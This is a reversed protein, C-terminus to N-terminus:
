LTVHQGPKLAQLIQAADSASTVKVGDIATVIEGSSFSKAAPSGEVGNLVPARGQAARTLPAFELGLFGPKSDSLTHLFRDGFLFAAAAVAAVLAISYLVGRSM